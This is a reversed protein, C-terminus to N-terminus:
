MRIPATAQASTYIHDSTVKLGVKVLRHELDGTTHESNNTFILYKHGGEKLREIFIEAGQRSHTSQRSGAGRGYSSQKRWHPLRFVPM